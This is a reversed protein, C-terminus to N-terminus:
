PQEPFQIVKSNRTVHIRQEIATQATHAAQAASKMGTGSQWVTSEGDGHTELILYCWGGQPHYSISIIYDSIHTM